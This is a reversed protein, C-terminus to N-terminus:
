RFANRINPYNHGVASWIECYIRLLQIGTEPKCANITDHIVCECEFRM